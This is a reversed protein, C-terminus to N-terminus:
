KIILQKVTVYKGNNLRDVFSKFWEFGSPYLVFAYGGAKRIQEICRLQLKTPEGTDSKVEIGVFRGNICALVDPVGARTYANAFFKVQWGGSAEIFKKVRTEFIKERAM